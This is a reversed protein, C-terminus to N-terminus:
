RTWTAVVVRDLGALDKIVRIDSLGAELFLSHAAEGQEGDIEVALLGGANLRAAAGGAIRRLVALGDPGGDLAQRPEHQAIERPLPDGSKVYPPNSVLVDFRADPPVADFLDGVRFDCREAVGLAEANERGLEAAGASIDTLTVKLGPREAALTIGIAGTGCGLDLAARGAGGEPLAALAFEVVHETEPRPILARRDCRFRRGYFERWGVIYQTPEGAARRRVLERYASVEDDHLPRDFDTFLKVRDCSLVHALLLEATLRPADIQAGAERGGSTEHPRRLRGEERNKEEFWERTTALLRRVTWTDGTAAM